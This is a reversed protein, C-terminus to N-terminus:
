GRSTPRREAARGIRSETISLTPRTAMSAVIQGGGDGRDDVIEAAEGLERPQERDIQQGLGHGHRDEALEGVLDAALRHHQDPDPREDGARDQATQGPAHRRQDGEAGQLSQAGARDLRGRHGDDPVDVRDLLPGLDLAVHGTDPGDRRHDAGGEASHEDVKEVPAPDEEDVHREAQHGGPRQEALEILLDITLTMPDVHGTRGQEDGPRGQQNKPQQLAPHPPSPERRGADAGQHAPRDQQDDEPQDLPPRGLGDQGAPHEAAPQEIGGVDSRRAM